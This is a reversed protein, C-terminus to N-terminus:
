NKSYPTYKFSKIKVKSNKVAQKNASDTLWLNFHFRTNLFKFEKPKKLTKEAITEYQGTKKNYFLSSISIRHDYIDIIHKTLKIKLPIVFRQVHLKNNTHVAFQANKHDTQGWQAFEIDVENYHPDATADYLFIGLVMQPSFHKINTKIITEFRGEKFVDDSYFEACSYGKAVKKIKLIINRKKDFYVNRKHVGFINNGPGVQEQSIKNHWKIDNFLFTNMNQQSYVKSGTALLSTIGWFLVRFLFKYKRKSIIM